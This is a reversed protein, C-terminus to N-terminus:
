RSATSCMENQAIESRDSKMGHGAGIESNFLNLIGRSNVIKILASTVM